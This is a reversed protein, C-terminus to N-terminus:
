PTAVTEPTEHAPPEAAPLIKPPPMLRSGDKARWVGEAFLLTGDKDYYRTWPALYAGGPPPLVWGGRQWVYYRGRWSWQGVLWVADPRPKPPIVEAVAAPPPYPVEVFADCPHMGTAPKQLSGSCGLLLAAAFGFLLAPRGRARWSAASHVRQRPM